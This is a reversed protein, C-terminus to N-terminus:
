RSMLAIHKAVEITVAHDNIIVGNTPNVNIDIGIFDVGQLFDGLQRSSWRVYPEGSELAKWLDRLIIAPKSLPNNESNLLM